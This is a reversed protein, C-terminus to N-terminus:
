VEDVANAGRVSRHVPPRRCHIPRLIILRRPSLSLPPHFLVRPPHERIFAFSIACLSHPRSTTFTLSRLHQRRIMLSPQVIPSAAPSRPSPLRMSSRHINHPTLNPLPCRSRHPHSRPDDPFTYPANLNRRPARRMPIPKHLGSRRHSGSQPGTGTGTGAVGYGAGRCIVM